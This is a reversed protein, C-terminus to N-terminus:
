SSYDRLFRNSLAAYQPLWRQCLIESNAVIKIMVIGSIITDCCVISTVTSVKIIEALKGMYLIAEKQKVLPALHEVNGRCYAELILGFRVSVSPVHM